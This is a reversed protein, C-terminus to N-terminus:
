SLGQRQPRWGSFSHVARVDTDTDADAADRNSGAGPPFRAQDLQTEHQQYVEILLGQVGCGSAAPEAPPPPSCDRSVPCM